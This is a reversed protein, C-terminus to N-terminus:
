KGGEEAKRRRYWTRESMGAAEWPKDRVEGIRPRGTKRKSLPSASVSDRKVETPRAAKQSPGALVSGSPGKRATGSAEPTNRRVRPCAHSFFDRVGEGCDPCILKSMARLKASYTLRTTVTALSLTM